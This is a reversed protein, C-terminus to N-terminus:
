RAKSRSIPLRSWNQKSKRTQIRKSTSASDWQSIAYCELYFTCIVEMFSHHLKLAISFDQRLVRRPPPPPRRYVTIKKQIPSLTCITKQDEVSPYFIWSAEPYINGTKWHCFYKYELRSLSYPKWKNKWSILPNIYRLCMIKVHEM